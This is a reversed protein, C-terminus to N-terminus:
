VAESMAENEKGGPLFDQKYLGRVQVLDGIHPLDTARTSNYDLHNLQLVYEMQCYHCSM